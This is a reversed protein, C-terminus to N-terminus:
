SGSSVPYIYIYFGVYNTEIWLASKAWVAAVGLHWGTILDPWLHATLVPGAPVQSAWQSAKYGVAMQVLGPHRQPCVSGQTIQMQGEFFFFTETNNSVVAASMNLSIFASDHLIVACYIKTHRLIWPFPKYLCCHVCRQSYLYRMPSM